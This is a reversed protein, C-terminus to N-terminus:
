RFEQWESLEEELHRRAAEEDYELNPYEPQWTPLPDMFEAWATPGALFEDETVLARDLLQQIRDDELHRGILMVEQRRDGFPLQWLKKLRDIMSRDEWPWRDQDLSAYWPGFAALSHVRGALSWHGAVDHRNALWVFGKIRDIHRLQDDSM